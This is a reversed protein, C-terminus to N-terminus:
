NLTDIFRVPQRKHQDDIEAHNVWSDSVLKDVISQKKSHKTSGRRAAMKAPEESEPLRARAVQQQTHGFNSDEWKQWRLAAKQRLNAVKSHAVAGKAGSFHAMRQEATPQAGKGIPQFYSNEWSDVNKARKPMVKTHQAYLGTRTKLNLPIGAAPHFYSNEWKQWSKAAARFLRNSGHVVQPAKKHMAEYEEATLTHPRPAHHAHGAVKPHPVPPTMGTEAWISNAALVSSQRPRLTSIVLVTAIVAACAAVAPFLKGAM